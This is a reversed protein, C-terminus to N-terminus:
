WRGGAGGGGTMGGGFGGGRFGGGGFGGGSRRGAVAGAAAAATLGGSELRDIRYREERSNGCNECRYVRLGEGERRLTPKREVKDSYLHMARVHCNPCETFKSKPNVFGMVEVRHCEPCKWVDFEMSGLDEELARERPMYQRAEQKSLKLMKRGCSSCKVDYRKKRYISRYPIYLLLGLGLSLVTMWIMLPMRRKMLVARGHNGDVKVRMTQWFIICEVLFMIAVTFGLLGLLAQRLEEKSLGTGFNDGEESRLEEAVSPDSLAEGVQQVAATVAGYLNGDKMEPIIGGRVIKSCLIDPLAGEAGYGTMIFCCRSEPSIMILVGNDRDKKGIGWLTFLKESWEQEDSDGIDPPLAVVVECTTTRRIETLKANLASKQQATLFGGPDSVFHTSDTLQVNPMDKPTYVKAGCPMWVTFLLVVLLIGFRRGSMLKDMVEKGM